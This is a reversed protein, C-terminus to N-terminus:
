ANTSDGKVELTWGDGSLSKITTYEGGNQSAYLELARLVDRAITWKHIISNAEGASVHHSQISASPLCGSKARIIVPNVIGFRISLTDGEIIRGVLHQTRM